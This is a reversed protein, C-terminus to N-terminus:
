RDLENHSFLSHQQQAAPDSPEPASVADTGGPRIQEVAPEAINTEPLQVDLHQATGAPDVDAPEQNPLRDVDRIDDLTPLEDGGLDGGLGDPADDDSADDTASADDTEDTDDTDDTDDTASADDTDSADDVDVVIQDTGDGGLEDLADDDRAADEDAMPPEAQEDALETLRDGADTEEDPDAEAAKMFWDVAEARRNAQLLLDAYAYFRRASFAEDADTGLAGELHALAADLQGLDARAGAVVIRLEAASGPDLDAAEASRSLEIAKEPHGLARECDAIVPLQGPGGSMRRAARLEAIAEAWEGARYAVLGVTERVVAIRGGKSRAARAHRWALAPDEEALTGAMLLHAAVFEAGEKSLGRLDRRVEADLDRPDAWEPVEPWREGIEEERVRSGRDPERRAFAPADGDRRTTSRDANGSRAPAEKDRWTAPRQLRDARDPRGERSQQEAHDSRDQWPRTNGAVPEPRPV